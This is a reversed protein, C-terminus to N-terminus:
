KETRLREELAAVSAFESAPEGARALLDDLEGGGWRRYRRAKLLLQLRDCAHVFRAEPTRNAVYEEFLGLAEDGEGFLERLVARELDQKAGPALHGAVTRPLDGTRVEAVDHVLALALSRRLDIAEDRGLRWVLFALHFSHEAVSEPRDVGRLAWGMRPVRDLGELELLTELVDPRDRDAAESM